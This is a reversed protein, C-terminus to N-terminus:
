GDAIPALKHKRTSKRESNKEVRLFAYRGVEFHKRRIRLHKDYNKKYRQQAKMLEERFEGVHKGHKSIWADQALRVNKMPQSYDEMAM